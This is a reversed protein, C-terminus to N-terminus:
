FEVEGSETGKHLLLSKREKDWSIHVLNSQDEFWELLLHNSIRLRTPLPLNTVELYCWTADDENEKGLYTMKVNQGDAKIELRNHLYRSLLTDTSAHERPTGMRLKPTGIGELAEELDNTFIKVAIELSNTKSNYHIDTISVHFDHLSEGELSKLPSIPLSHAQLSGGAILSLLLCNLIITTTIRQV